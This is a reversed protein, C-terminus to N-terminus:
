SKSEPYMTKRGHHYGEELGDLIVDVGNEITVKEGLAALVVGLTNAMLRAVITRPLKIHKAILATLDNHFDKYEPLMEMAQPEKDM